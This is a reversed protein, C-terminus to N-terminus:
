LLVSLFTSRSAILLNTCRGSFARLHLGKVLVLCKMASGQTVKSSSLKPSAFSSRPSTGSVSNPSSIKFLPTPMKEHIMKASIGPNECVMKIIFEEQRQKKSKNLSQDSIKAICDRFEKKASTMTKSLIAYDQCYVMDKQEIEAEWYKCLADIVNRRSELDKMKHLKQLDKENFRMKLLTEKYPSLWHISDICKYLHDTYADIMTDIAKSM